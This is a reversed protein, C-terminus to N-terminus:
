WISVGAEVVRLLQLALLGYIGALADDLMIGIGGKVRRDILGIPWPKLIDFFRFFVFGAVMWGWGAPASIMTILYGVIEDWVIGGPDRAGLDRSTRDCIWIGVLFLIVTIGLYAVLSLGQFVLFLPIAVLTGLTGPAVPSTGAGFGFALLHVPDRWDFAQKRASRREGM